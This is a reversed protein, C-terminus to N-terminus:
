KKPTNAGVAPLVKQIDILCLKISDQALRKVLVINRGAVSSFSM